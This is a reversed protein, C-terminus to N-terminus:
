TPTQILGASEVTRSRDIVHGAGRNDRSMVEFSEEVLVLITNETM